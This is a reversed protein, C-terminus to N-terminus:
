ATLSHLAATLRERADDAVDTLSDNGTLTVMTTPDLIEVITTADDSARVVVNCPLLLGISPEAQIAAHALAPRCAGLIVQAPIDAGIKAKLTGALDIETLLGFGQDTLASRTARVTEEFPRPVTATLAYGM